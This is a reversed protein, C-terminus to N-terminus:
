LGGELSWCDSSILVRFVLLCFLFSFFALHPFFSFIYAIITTALNGSLMMLCRRTITLATPRHNSNISPKEGAGHNCQNNTSPFPLLL